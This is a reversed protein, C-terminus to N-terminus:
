IGELASSGQEHEHISVSAARGDSRRAAEELLSALPLESAGEPALMPEEPAYAGSSRRDPPGEPGGPVYLDPSGEEALFALLRREARWRRKKVANYTVGLREAVVALPVLDVETALILEAEAGSIVGAAIARRLPAEVDAEVPGAERDVLEDEAAAEFSV